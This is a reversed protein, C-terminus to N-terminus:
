HDQIMAEIIVMAEAIKEAQETTNFIAVLRGRPDILYLFLPQNIGLEQYGLSKKLDDITEKDGTLGIFLKEFQPLYDKMKDAKIDAHNALLIFRLQHQLKINDIENYIYIAKSLLQQATQDPDSVMMLNWHNKLHSTNFVQEYQDKLKFTSIVQPPELLTASLDAPLKIQRQSQKYYNGWLYASTIAMIVVVALKLRQQFPQKNNLFM